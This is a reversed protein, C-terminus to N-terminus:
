LHNVPIRRALWSEKIPIIWGNLLEKKTLITNNFYFTDSTIFENEISYNVQSLPVLHIRENVIFAMMQRDFLHVQYDEELKKILKVSADTSCGGVKTHTEDAMFVIFQGFFLNAYGEIGSGHSHWNKIFNQLVKEIELVESMMFPRNCQYVWVRSNDNFDQPILDQFNININM